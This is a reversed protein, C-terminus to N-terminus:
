FYVVPSSYGADLIRKVEKLLGIEPRRISGGETSVSEAGVHDKSQYEYAVQILEARVLDANVTGDFGGQYIITWDLNQISGSKLEIGFPRIIYDDSGLLTGDITVSTISAIPFYELFLFKTKLLENGTDTREAKSSVLKRGIYSEIADHASDAIVSLGQVDSISAGELDLFPKLDNTYDLITPM